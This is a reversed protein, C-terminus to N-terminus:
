IFRGTICYESCSQLRNLLSVALTQQALTVAQFLAMQKQHDKSSRLKNQRGGMEIKGMSETTAAPIEILGTNCTDTRTTAFNFAQHSSVHSVLEAFHFPLDTGNCVQLPGSPELFNLNGSIMVVACSPSLTTLRVCQGSKVGLFYEQYENRNSASDIGPGYHSRFSKIDILFELSM